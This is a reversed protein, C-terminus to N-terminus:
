REGYKVERTDFRRLGEDRQVEGMTKFHTYEQYKKLMLHQHAAEEIRRMAEAQYRDSCCPWEGTM